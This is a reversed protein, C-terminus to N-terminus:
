RNTKKAKAKNYQTLCEELPKDQNYICECFKKCAEPDSNDPCGNTCEEPSNGPRIDYVINNLFIVAALIAVVSGFFLFPFKNTFQEKKASFGHEKVQRFSLIYKM